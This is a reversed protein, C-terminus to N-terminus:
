YLPSDYSLVGEEMMSISSGLLVLSIATGDLVEDVVTQFVSPITEDDEVLYSFEDIAVVCPGDIRAKLYRFAEIFGDVDPPIDDLTEACRTAFAQANHAPGRQNCLHYVSDAELSDLATTVLTTKGVRRRGYLVLLQRDESTLHSTIWDIEARREIM